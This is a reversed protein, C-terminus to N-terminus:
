LTADAPFRHSKTIVAVNRQLSVAPGRANWALWAVDHPRPKYSRNLLKYPIRYKRARSAEFPVLNAAGARAAHPSGAFSVSCLRQAQSPSLGRPRTANASQGSTCKLSAHLHKTGVLAHTARRTRQNHTNSAAISISSAKEYLAGIADGGHMKSARETKSTKM